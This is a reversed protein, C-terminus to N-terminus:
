IFNVVLASPNEKERAAATAQQQTSGKMAIKERDIRKCKEDLRFFFASIIIIVV